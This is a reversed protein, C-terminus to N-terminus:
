EFYEQVFNEVSERICIQSKGEKKEIMNVSCLYDYIKEYSGDNDKALENWFIWVDSNDQYAAYSPLIGYMIRLLHNVFLYEENRQFHFSM